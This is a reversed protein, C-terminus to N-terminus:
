NEDSILRYHGGKFKGLNFVAFTCIETKFSTCYILILKISFYIIYLIIILKIKVLVQM